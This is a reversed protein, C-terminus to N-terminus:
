VLGKDALYKTLTVNFVLDDAGARKIEDRMEPTPDAGMVIIMPRVSAQIQSRVQRILPVAGKEPLSWNIILMHIGREREERVITVAIKDDSACMVEHGHSEVFSACARRIDRDPDAILVRKRRRM